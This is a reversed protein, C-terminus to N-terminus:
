MTGCHRLLDLLRLTVLARELDILRRVLQRGVEPGGEGSAAEPESAALYGKARRAARTRNRGRGARTGTFIIPGPRNRGARTIPGSRQRQERRRWMGTGKNESEFAGAAPASKTKLLARRKLLSKRLWGANAFGRQAIAPHNRLDSKCPPARRRGRQQRPTHYGVLSLRLVYVRGCNFCDYHMIAQCGPYM